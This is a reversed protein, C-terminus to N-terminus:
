CLEMCISVKNIDSRMPIFAPLLQLGVILQGHFVHFLDSLFPWCLEKYWDFIDFEGVGVDDFNWQDGLNFM